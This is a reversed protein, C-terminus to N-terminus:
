STSGKREASRSEDECDRRCVFSGGSIEHRKFINMIKRLFWVLSGSYMACGPASRRISLLAKFDRRPVHCPLSVRRCFYGGEFKYLRSTRDNITFRLSKWLNTGGDGPLENLRLNKKLSKFGIKEVHIWGDNEVVTEAEINFINRQSDLKFVIKISILNIKYIPM